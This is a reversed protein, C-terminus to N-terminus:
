APKSNIFQRKVTHIIIENVFWDLSIFEAHIRFWLSWGIKMVQNNNEVIEAVWDDDNEIFNLNLNHTRLKSEIVGSDVITVISIQGDYFKYISEPNKITLLVPFFIHSRSNQSLISAIPQGICKKLFETAVDPNFNTSAIYLLGSEPEIVSIGNEDATLVLRDIKERHHVEKEGVGVRRYYGEERYLKETSDTKLYKMVNQTELSQRIDRNTRRTGSKAELIMFNGDRPVTIDGYRLCNTIDNLLVIHGHAFANRFIRRELRSGKKGTLSGATEKIALPKIDWKDIFSFALADGIDRYIMALEKYDDIQQHFKNIKDKADRAQNKSLRTVDHGGLQRKLNKIAQKKERIRREIYSIKQILTEQVHLCEEVSEQPNAYINHCQEFLKLLTQKHRPLM